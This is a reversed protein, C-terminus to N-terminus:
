VSVASGNSGYQKFKTNLEAVLHQIEIDLGVLAFREPYILQFIKLGAIAMAMAMRLTFMVPLEAPHLIRVQFSVAGETETSQVSTFVGMQNPHAGYDILTSYLRHLDAAAAPDLASHTSRVNTITFEGKCANTAAPNENRQLWINTRREADQGSAMHLAYWSQEVGVRLLVSAEGIQGSMGVRLAALFSSHTRVLLFRPVLSIWGSDKEMCERARIFASDVRKLSEFVTPYNAATVKTNYDADRM